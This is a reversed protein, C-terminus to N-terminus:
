TAPVVFSAEVHLQAVYLPVDFIGRRRVETEARGQIVLKRPLVTLLATRAHTKGEPDTWPAEYSILLAPGAVEQAAGWTRTVDDFAQDRTARREQVTGAILAIPIQLLLVLAGTVLARFLVSHRLWDPMAARVQMGRVM